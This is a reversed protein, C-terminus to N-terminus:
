SPERMSLVPDEFLEVEYLGDSDKWTIQGECEWRLNEHEFIFNHDDFDLELEAWRLDLEVYTTASHGFIHIPEDSLGSYLEHVPRHGPQISFSKVHPTLNIWHEGDASIELSPVQIDELAIPSDQEEPLQEIAWEAIHKSTGPVSLSALLTGSLKLFQRRNLKM